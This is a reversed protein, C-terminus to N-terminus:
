CDGNEYSYKTHCIPCTIYEEWNKHGDYPLCINSYELKGGMQKIEDSQLDGIDFGCYPCDFEGFIPQGKKWTPTYNEGALHWYKLRRKKAQRKNM